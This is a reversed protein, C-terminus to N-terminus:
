SVSRMATVYYGAANDRGAFDWNTGAIAAMLLQTGVSRHIDSSCSFSADRLLRWLCILLSGLSYSETTMAVWKAKFMGNVNVINQGVSCAM